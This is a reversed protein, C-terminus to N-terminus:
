EGGALGFLRRANEGTVAAFATPGLRDRLEALLARVLGAHEEGYHCADTGFLVREPGIAAVARAIEGADAHATDFYLLGDGRRTAHAAADLLEARATNALADYVLLPVRPFQRALALLEGAAAAAPTARDLRMIAPRNLSALVALYPGLREGDALTYGHLRPSFVAGAFPERSLAGALAQPNSDFLGARVWYLPVLRADKRHAELGALNADVEDLLAQPGTADVHSTLLAGVGCATAYAALGEAPRDRGDLYGLHAHADIIMAAM